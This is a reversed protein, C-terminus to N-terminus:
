STERSGPFWAAALQKQWDKGWVHSMIREIHQANSNDQSSLQGHFKVISTREILADPFGRTREYNMLTEYIEAYRDAARELADVPRQKNWRATILAHVDGSSPPKRSYRVVAKVFRYFRQLDLPHFSDWTDLAIWAEFYRGVVKSIKIM